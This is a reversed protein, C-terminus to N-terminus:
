SIFLVVMVKKHESEFLTDDIIKQCLSEQSTLKTQVALCLTSKNVTDEIMEIDIFAFIDWPAGPANRFVHQKYKPIDENELHEVRLYVTNTM